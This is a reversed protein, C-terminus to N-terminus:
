ISIPMSKIEKFTQIEKKRLLHSTLQMSNTFIGRINLITRYIEIVKTRNIITDKNITIM